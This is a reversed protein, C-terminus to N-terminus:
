TQKERLIEDLAESLNWIPDLDGERLMEVIHPVGAAALRNAMDMIHNPDQVIEVNGEVAIAILMLIQIQWSNPEFIEGVTIFQFTKQELKDPELHNRAAYSLGAFWLDVMRRFPRHDINAKGIAQRQCYQDYFERHSDPAILGINAFPNNYQQGM